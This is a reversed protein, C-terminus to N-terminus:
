IEQILYKYRKVCYQCLYLENWPDLRVVYRHFTKHDVIEFPESSPDLKSKLASTLTGRAKLVAAAFHGGRLMIVVWLPPPPSSTVQLLRDLQVAQPEQAAAQSGKGHDQFLLCRWVALYRNDALPATLTLEEPAM